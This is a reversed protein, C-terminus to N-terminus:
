VRRWSSSLLLWLKEIAPLSVRQGFVRYDAAVIRALVRGYIESLLWPCARSERPLHALLRRGSNLRARARGGHAALLARLGDTMTRAKLQAEDVGHAALNESPLYIRGLALDEDVDRLINVYQMGLGLDVAADRMEDTPAKGNTLIPLTALGVSSAVHYCYTRLEDYTEIRTSTLDMEVGTIVDRLDEERVKFRAIADALALDRDTKPQGQAALALRERMSELGARRAALNGPDSDRVNTPPIHGEGEALRDGRPEGASLIAFGKEGTASPPPFAADAVCDAARCFAYLAYVARRQARPLSLFAFYFNHATRRTTRACARYAHALDTAM